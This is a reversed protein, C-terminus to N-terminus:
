RRGFRREIDAIPIRVSTPRGHPCNTSRETSDRLELLRALEAECLHDGGKVAAKCAMMDLIDALAAERTAAAGTGEASDGLEDSELVRAVFAAADVKRASLFGPFAHVAVSRPGAAVAEIGLRRLLSDVRELRALAEPAVDRVAPVLLRQSLLDGSTVRARIEEFMVREHLAHQDIIVLDTGEAVIVFTDNVQLIQRTKVPSIPLMSQTDIGRLWEAAATARPEVVATQSLAASAVARTHDGVPERGREGLLAHGSATLDEGRLAGQVAHHVLRHILAPQRWRVESKQPHVNVDVCAPDVDLFLVFAPQLGPEALGRYAERVAHLLSRDTIPRGNVLLRQTRSATRMRSPRCVLGRLRVDSVNELTGDAGVEIPSEGLAEGVVDLVREMPEATPLLDLVRRGGSELRFAVGPHALAANAVVETVRAAEAPDSRLFHRRAPVNNFLGCVEVLTGVTAACPRLGDVEGFRSEVAWGEPASAPRSAVTVHAVAAISSLAEGRFGFSRLTHLDDHSAIKSTAHPALALALDARDMGSGDDLVSLRERGGGEIRVVIRTAGADLANEILEKAVSAPREVVEGAAIQNVLAQPLIRIAM